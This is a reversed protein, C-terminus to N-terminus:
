RLKLVAEIPIHDSTLLSYARPVPEANYIEINDSTIVNDIYYLTGTPNDYDDFDARNSSWTYYKGFWGCNALNMDEATFLAFLTDEEGPEPNFDGFIIFKDHQKAINIIENAETIRTAANAAGVSLHVSMVYIGDFMYAETYYRGTSLQKNEGYSLFYRTMLATQSGTHRESGFYHDWIADTAWITEAADTRSDYEQFGILDIEEQGFFRRYNTLKENYVEDPIGFGVGYDYHGVNYSMVKLYKPTETPKIVYGCKLADEPDLNRSPETGLMFRITVADPSVIYSRSYNFYNSQYIFDGNIDYETICLKLGDVINVEIDYSFGGSVPIPASYLRQGANVISGDAEIRGCKWGTLPVMNDSLAREVGASIDNFNSTFIQAPFQDTRKSIVMYKVNQNLVIRNLGATLNFPNLFVKNEDYYGNYTGAIGYVYYIKSPDVEIWDTRSWTEQYAFHGDTRDVYEGAVLTYEIEDYYGEVGRKINGTVFADAAAGAVSLSTDVVPTSPQTINQALWIATETAITPDMIANLTGDAAFVRMAALVEESVDLNTFYNDIFDKYSTWETKTADWEDQMQRMIKIIQDLNMEHFNSYPFQQFIGM